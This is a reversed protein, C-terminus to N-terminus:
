LDLKKSLTEKLLSSEYTQISRVHASEYRQPLELLMFIFFTLILLKTCQDTKSNSIETFIVSAIGAITMYYPWRVKNENYIILQHMRDILESVSKKKIQEKDVGKVSLEIDGERNYVWIRPVVYIAMFIMLYPTIKSM